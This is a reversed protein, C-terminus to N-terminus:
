TLHSSQVVNNLSLFQFKITDKVLVQQFLVMLNQIGTQLPYPNSPYLYHTPTTHKIPQVSIPPVSTHLINNETALFLKQPTAFTLPSTTYLSVQSKNSSTKKTASKLTRITPSFLARHIFTLLNRLPQLPHLTSTSLNISHSLSNVNFQPTNSFTFSM